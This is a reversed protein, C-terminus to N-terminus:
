VTMHRCRLVAYPMGPVPRVQLMDFAPQLAQALGVAAEQIAGLSEKENQLTMINVLPM